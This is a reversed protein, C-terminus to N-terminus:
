DEQPPDEGGFASGGYASTGSEARRINWRRNHPKPKREPKIQSPAPSPLRGNLSDSEISPRHDPQRRGEPGGLASQQKGHGLALYALPGVALPLCNPRQGGAKQEAGSPLTPPCNERQVAGESITTPHAMESPSSAPSVAGQKMPGYARWALAMAGLLYAPSRLYATPAVGQKVLAYAVCLM